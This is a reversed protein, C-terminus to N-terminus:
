DALKGHRIHLLHSVALSLEQHDGEVPRGSEFDPCHLFFVNLLESNSIRFYPSLGATEEDKEERDFVLSANRGTALNEFIRLTSRRIQAARFPPV